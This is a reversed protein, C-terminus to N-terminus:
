RTERREPVCGHAGRASCAASWARAALAGRGERPWGLKWRGARQGAGAETPRSRPSGPASRRTPRCAGTAAPSLAVMGVKPADATCSRKFQNSFFRRYFLSLWRKLTALDYRDAFAVQALDLIRAPRAGHRVFSYLFFDHLEYPGIASETLQAIQGEEDAPLLEPSIPTELISFLIARLTEGDSSWTTARENAVWRVVFRILTKPVSANVDYMSIHDGSYTAWGLAKESLDGTGVVIGGVQNALTVLVLTRLRAQVNELTVDGLSPDRRLNALLEDVTAAGDAARHGTGELVLRSAESVSIERFGAGLAAALREANGRTTATTGLGPMSVCVLDTRPQGELDLAAACVLAAMTSDLGGSLGLVLKPTGIARMRTALANSQIEFIEWCRTALTAPDSPHVPAPEGGAEAPGRACAGLLPRPPLGRRHERALRRLHHHGGARAGAGRPGRRADAASRHARLAAVRRAPEREECIFADADFALDTSSEGPGAAVYLYACKGRDSASRGLLRRLEAKGITFNSASLNAIVTAGASVQFTSPPLQVWYDECIELGVVLSPEEAACFLLDGGFPVEAGLVRASSGPPVEVGPRFWRAEEFERYNPLYQKPVVGLVRGRQLAVAVNYLGAGAVLPMGVVVLPTRERSAEVVRGLARECAELLHRDLVLDRVTYGCLGLEPFVVLADGQAHSRELLALTHEVNADFDAVRVVPVAVSVRAFGRM